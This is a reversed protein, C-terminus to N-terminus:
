LAIDDLPCMEGTEIYYNFCIKNFGKEKLQKAINFPVYM